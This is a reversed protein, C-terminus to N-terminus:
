DFFLFLNKKFITLKHFHYADKITSMTKSHYIAVHTFDRTYHWNEFDTIDDWLSTGIALIGKPNLLKRLRTLEERPHEMHELVENLTILDYSGTPFFSHFYPDVSEMHYGNERFLIEMGKTEGSGVDLARAEKTIIDMCPKALKMLFARYEPNSIHNKHKNYRELASEKSPHHSPDMFLLSCSPCLYYSRKHITLFLESHSLCLICNM